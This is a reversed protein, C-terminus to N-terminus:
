SFINIREPTKGKGLVLESGFSGSINLCKIASESLSRFDSPFNFGTYNPKLKDLRNALTIAAITAPVDIKGELNYAIVTYSDTIAFRALSSSALSM